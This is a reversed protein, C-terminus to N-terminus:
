PSKAHAMTFLSFHQSICHTLLARLLPAGVHCMAESTDALNTDEPAVDATCLGAVGWVGWVLVREFPEHSMILHMGHLQHM